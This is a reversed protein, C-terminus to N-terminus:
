EQKRGYMRMFMTLAIPGLSNADYATRARNESSKCDAGFVEEASADKILM